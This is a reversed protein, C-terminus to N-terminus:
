GNWQLIAPSEKEYGLISLSATQLPFSDGHAVSIGLWTLALVRLSHGHAFCIAKDADSYRVRDVVRALREVVENKSEGDPVAYKWIRWGPVKERVEASTRGEYRGYNWEALDDDIEYHEFGALEATRRARLRPSALVLGFESPDPLKNRLLLADEVGKETLDIDSYSTYRGSKSWETEGHRVIYLQVM